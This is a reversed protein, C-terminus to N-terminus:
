GELEQALEKSTGGIEANEGRRISAQPATVTGRSTSIKLYPNTEILDKQAGTYSFLCWNHYPHWVLDQLIGARKDGWAPNLRSGEHKPARLYLKEKENFFWFSGLTEIELYKNIITM